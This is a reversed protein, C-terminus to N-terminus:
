FSVIDQNSQENESHKIDGGDDVDEIVSGDRTEFFRFPTCFVDSVYTQPIERDFTECLNQFVPNKVKGSVRVPFVALSDLKQFDEKSM